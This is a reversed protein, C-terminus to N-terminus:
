GCEETQQDDYNRAAALIHRDDVHRITTTSGQTFPASVPDPPGLTLKAHPDIM